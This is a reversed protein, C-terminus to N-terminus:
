NSGFVAKLVIEKAEAALDDFSESRRFYFVVGALMSWVADVIRARRQPSGFAARDLVRAAFSKCVSEQAELKALQEPQFNGEWSATDRQIVFFIIQFYEPFERAFAFFTDILRGAAGAPDDQPDTAEQLRQALLSYGEFLLEVYLAQKSPFYLYITGPAVEAESAIQPVTAGSYGRQWFVKRAAQLISDRRQHSERQRREAIGM